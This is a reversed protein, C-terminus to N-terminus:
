GLMLLVVPKEVSPHMAARSLIMFIPFASVFIMAPCRPGMTVM